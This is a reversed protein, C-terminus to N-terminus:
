QNHKENIVGNREVIYQFIEVTKQKSDNIENGLSDTDYYTLASTVLINDSSNIIINESCEYGMGAGCGFSIQKFDILSGDKAYTAISPYYCTAAVCYLVAYINTTDPFIGTAYAPGIYGNLFISDNKMDLKVSTASDPSYCDTNMELPFSIPKFKSIFTKFKSITDNNVQTSVIEINLDDSNNSNSNNSCSIFLVFISIIFFFPSTIINAKSKM